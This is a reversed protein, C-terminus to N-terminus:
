KKSRRHILLGAMGIALVSLATPEPVMTPTVDAYTTGVRLEDFYISTAANAGSSTGDQRLLFTQVVANGDGTNTPVDNRQNIAVVQGSPDSGGFTGSNPNIWMQFDDDQTNFNLTGKITYKGVVFYTTDFSLVSTDYTAQTADTGQEEAGVVFGAGSAKVFMSGGVTSPNGAQSGRTNNFGAVLGGAAATSALGGSPIMFAFSYYAPVPSGDPAALVPAFALRSTIGPGGFAVAGTGPLQGLGSVTLSSAAVLADASAAYTGSVGCSMWYNGNPAQQGWFRGTGSPGGTLGALFSQGSQGALGQDASYNFPEYLLLDASAHSAVLCLIGAGVVWSNTRQHNM